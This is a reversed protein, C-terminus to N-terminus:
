AARRGRRGFGAVQEAQDTIRIVANLVHNILEAHDDGSQRLMTLLRRLRTLEIDSVSYSEDPESEATASQGDPFVSYSATLSQPLLERRLRSLEQRARTLEQAATRHAQQSQVLKARLRTLDDEATVRDLAVQSRFASRCAISCYTRKAYRPASEHPQRQIPGGCQQCMRVPVDIRPM